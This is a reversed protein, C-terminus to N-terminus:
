KESKTGGEAAFKTDFSYIAKVLGRVESNFDPNRSFEIDTGVKLKRSVNYGAAGTVSYSNRIGNIERDYNV